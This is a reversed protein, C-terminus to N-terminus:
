FSLLSLSFKYEHVRLGKVRLLSHTDILFFQNHHHHSPRTPPTPFLLSSPSVDKSYENTLISVIQPPPLPGPPAPLKQCVLLSLQQDEETAPSSSHLQACRCQRGEEWRVCACVCHMRRVSSTSNVPRIMTHTGSKEVMMARTPDEQQVRNAKMRGPIKWQFSNLVYAWGFWGQM